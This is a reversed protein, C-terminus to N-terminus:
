PGFGPMTIVNTCDPHLLEEEEDEEEEEEAEEIYPLSPPDSDPDDHM